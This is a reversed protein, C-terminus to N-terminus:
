KAWPDFGNDIEQKDSYGDGDSDAALPNTQYMFVEVKDNLGDGDTDAKYKDTGFAEELYDYVGDGDSDVLRPDATGEIVQNQNLIVMGAPAKQGGRWFYYLWYALCVFIVILSILLVARKLQLQRNITSATQALKAKPVVPQNQNNGNM